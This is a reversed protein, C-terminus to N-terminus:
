MTKRRRRKKSSQANVADSSPLPKSLNLYGSKRRLHRLIRNEKTQPLEDAGKPQKSLNQHLGGRAELLRKWQNLLLNAPLPQTQRRPRVKQRPAQVIQGRARRLKRRSRETDAGQRRKLRSRNSNGRPEQLSKSLNLHFAGDRRHPKQRVQQLSQSM